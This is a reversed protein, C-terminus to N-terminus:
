REICIKKVVEQGGARIKLIYTGSVLNLNLEKNRKFDQISNNLVETGNMAFISIHTINSFPLEIKFDGTSPNPYIKLNESLTFDDIALINITFVDSTNVCGLQNTKVFYEGSNTTKLIQDTANDIVNGKYYWQNGLTNSSKLKLFGLDESSMIIPKPPIPNVTIKTSNISPNVNACKYAELSYIGSATVKLESNQTVGGVKNGDKFWQYGEFGTPVSLTTTSGECFTTPSNPVIIPKDLYECYFITYDYRKFDGQFSGTTIMKYKGTIKAEIVQNVNEKKVRMIENGNPDILITQAYIDNGSSLVSIILKGPRQIEVTYSDLDGKNGSADTQFFGTYQKNPQINYLKNSEENEDLASFMEVLAKKPEELHCVENGSCKYNYVNSNFGFNKMNQSYTSVVLDNLTGGIISSYGVNEDIGRQNLGIILDEIKGNCNVDYNDYPPIGRFMTTSNEYGGFLYIGNYGSLYFTRLDRVAESNERNGFVSGINLTSTLNSGGHPTGITVIKAVHHKGDYQWNEDNQLYERIALGGMSHGLLVVKEARTAALVKAIAFKLAYGQKVIASENSSGSSSCVDFNVSYVDNDKIIYSYEYVDNEKKSTAKNGDGNLCYDLTQREISLGANSLYPKFSDWTKAGGGLGHVLIIPYPINRQAFILSPTLFFILLLKKM